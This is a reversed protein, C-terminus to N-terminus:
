KKFSSTDDWEDVSFFRLGVPNVSEILNKIKEHYLHIARFEALHFILRNEEPIQKLKEYDIFLKEVISITKGDTRYEVISKKKDMCEILNRVYFIWYDYRSNKTLVKAPVLQTNYLNLPSLVDTIKKSYVHEPLKHFDVMWIADKREGKKIYM